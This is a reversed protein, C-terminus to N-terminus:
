LDLKDWKAMFDDQQKKRHRWHFPDAEDREIQYKEFNAILDDLLNLRELEWKIIEYIHDPNYYGEEEDIAQQTDTFVNGYKFVLLEYLQYVDLSEEITEWTTEETSENFKKIYKM